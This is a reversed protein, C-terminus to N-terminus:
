TTANPTSQTALATAAVEHGALVMLWLYLVDNELEPLSSVRDERIYQTTLEVAAVVIARSVVDPITPLDPQEARAREVVTRYLREFSRLTHERHTLAEPGAAMVELTCARAADPREGWFKLYARVGARIGEIYGPQSTGAIVMQELLERTSADYAALFCAEKSAFQEYFTDRSVRARRTIDGITTAGYGKTGVAAIMAALIRERQHHEVQERSLRHPGRPLRDAPVQATTSM